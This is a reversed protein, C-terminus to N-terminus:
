RPACPSRRRRLALDAASRHGWVRHARDGREKADIGGVVRHRPAEGDEIVFRAPRRRASQTARRCAFAAGRRVAADTGPTSSRSSGRLSAGRRVRRGRLAVADARRDRLRRPRGGALTAAEECASPRAELLLTRAPRRWRNRLRRGEHPFARGRALEKSVVRRVGVGEERRDRRRVGPARSTRPQAAFSASRRNSRRRERRSRRARRPRISDTESALAREFDLDFRESEAVQRLVREIGEVGRAVQFVVFFVPGEFSVVPGVLEDPALRDLSAAAGRTRRAGTRPPAPRARRRPRARCSCPCPLRPGASRRPRSSCTLAAASHDIPDVVIALGFPEFAGSLVPSDVVPFSGTTRPIRTGSASRALRLACISARM